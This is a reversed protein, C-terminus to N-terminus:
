PYKKNKDYLEIQGERVPEDVGTIYYMARETKYSEMCEYDYVESYILDIKWINGIHHSNPEPFISGSCGFPLNPYNYTLEREYDVYLYVVKDQLQHAM